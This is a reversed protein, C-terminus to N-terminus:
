AHSGVYNGYAAMAYPVGLFLTHIFGGLPGPTAAICVLGIVISLGGMLYAGRRMGFWGGLILIAVAIWWYNSM